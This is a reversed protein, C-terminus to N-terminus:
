ENNNVLCATSVGVTDCLDLIALAPKSYIDSSRGTRLRYIQSQSCKASKAIKADTVGAANLRKIIIKWDM